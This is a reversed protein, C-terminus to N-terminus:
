SSWDRAFAPWDIQRVQDAVYGAGPPGFGAQFWVAVVESGMDGADHVPTGSTFRGISCVPPLFDVDLEERREAPGLQVRSRLLRPPLICVKAEDIGFHEAAASVAEEIPWGRVSDDLPLGCLTGGYTHYQRLSSLSVLRGGPLTAEWCAGESIARYGGPGRQERPLRAWEFPLRIAVPDYEELARIFEADSM